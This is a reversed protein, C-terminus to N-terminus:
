EDKNNKMDEIMKLLEATSGVFLNNTVGGTEGTEETKVIRQKKIQMDLLGMNIEAYTKILSNLTEYAKPHQSQQAIILMDQLAQSAVEIVSHVNDRAEEVDNIAEVDVSPLKDNIVMPMSNINLADDIKDTM